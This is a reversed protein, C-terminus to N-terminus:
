RTSTNCSFNMLSSDSILHIKSVEDKKTLSKYNCAGYVSLLAAILLLFCFIWCVLSNKLIKHNTNASGTPHFERTKDLIKSFIFRMRQMVIILLFDTTIALILLGLVVISQPQLQAIGYWLGGTLTMAILPVQWMLGNLSRLHESNQEFCVKDRDFNRQRDAEERSFLQDQTLSCM